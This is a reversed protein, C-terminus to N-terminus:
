SRGWSTNRSILVAAGAFIIQSAAARVWKNVQIRVLIDGLPLEGVGAGIPQRLVACVASVLWLRIRQMIRREKLSKWKRAREM